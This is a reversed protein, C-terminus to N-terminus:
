ILAFLKLGIVIIAADALLHMIWSNIITQTKVNVYNFIMGVTFLSVLALIVLPGSFWTAFISLHYVSFLLASFAYGTRVYGMEALNQFVFGRFFFEELFSNGFTIYLGVWIFIQPTIRSKQILESSIKELDLWPNLVIFAMGIIAGACVGLAVGIRYAKFHSRYVVLRKWQGSGGMLLPLGLFCAMKIPTSIM